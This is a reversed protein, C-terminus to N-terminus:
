TFEDASVYIKEIDSYKYQNKVFQKLDTISESTNDDITKM